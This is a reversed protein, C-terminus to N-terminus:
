IDSVPESLSILLMSYIIIQKFDASIQLIMPDPLYLSMVKFDRTRDERKRSGSNDLWERSHKQIGGVVLSQLQVRGGRRSMWTFKTPRSIFETQHYYRPSGCAGKEQERSDEARRPSRVPELEREALSVSRLVSFTYM